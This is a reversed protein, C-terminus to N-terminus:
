SWAKRGGWSGWPVCALCRQGMWGSADVCAVVGGPECSDMWMCGCGMMGVVGCEVLCGECAEVWTAVAVVCGLVGVM